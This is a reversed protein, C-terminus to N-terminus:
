SDTRVALPGSSPAAHVAAPSNDAVGSGTVLRRALGATLLVATTVFSSSVLSSTWPFSRDVGLLRTETLWWLGFGAHVM